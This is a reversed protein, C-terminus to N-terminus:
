IVVKVESNLGFQPPTPRGFARKSTMERDHMRSLGEARM